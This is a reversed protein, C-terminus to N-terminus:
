DVAANVNFYLMIGLVKADVAMTDSGDTPVRELKFHALDRAVPSGGITIDPTEASVYLNNTTGGTDAVTVATGFATDLAENDGRAAGSLRWVVGFNTTTAPHTWFVRARVVSGDYSDPLGLTFQASEATAADFDLTNLVDKNTTTEAAVPAAGNTTAATFAAAPIWIAHRGRVDRDSFDESLPTSWIVASATFVEKTAPGASSRIVTTRQFTWPTGSVPTGYGYEFKSNEKIMYPYLQGSTASDNWRLVDSSYAAGLSLDGQGTSPSSGVATVLQKVRTLPAKANPM